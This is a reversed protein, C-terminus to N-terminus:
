LCMVEKTRQAEKEKRNRYRRLLRRCKSDLHLEIDSETLGQLFSEMRERRVEEQAVEGEEVIEIASCFSIKSVAALLRKYLGGLSYVSKFRKEFIVVKM